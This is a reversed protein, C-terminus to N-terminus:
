ARGRTRSGRRRFVIRQAAGHAERVDVTLRLRHRSKSVEITDDGAWSGYGAGDVTLSLSMAKQSPDAIALALEGRHERMLVTCPWPDGPGVPALRVADAIVIGNADNSVEVHYDDGAVFNFVGLRHWGTGHGFRQNIRIATQGGAHSVIFPTDTAYSSHEFSWASVAYTGSVPVRITFRAAATGDGERNFHHHGEHRHNGTSAGWNGSVIQFEPSLDDVVVTPLDPESPQELTVLGASGPTWFNVATVGARPYHIAQAARGNALIELGPDAALEATRAATAGPVLAYAYSEDSPRVGHDIWLTQYRRTIPDDPGDLWIDTWRGVRDERLANVTAGGPFLYGGVGELHAWRVDPFTANWGPAEPQVTDDITLTNTGDAHLSRNEVITEVAHESGGTIGAGLAVVYDDLFFWSKKARLSSTWRPDQTLAMMATGYGDLETGGVADEPSTYNRGQADNRPEPDVTIGPLRYPDVTPWFADAYHGLDDTYHYLMGSATHWGHLNTRLGTAEYTRIRSSSMALGISYGPRHHVARDMGVFPRYGLPREYAPIGPDDTVSRALPILDLRAEDLFRRYTDRAIWHKAMSRFAARDAAPAAEALRLVAEIVIHGAFHDNKAPDAIVRGRVMDMMAGDIMFPEFSDYVWRNVNDREPDTVEWSSGTLITLLPALEVLMGSGYGGNYPFATHQIFSGDRHFGDGSQVYPFLSSLSSSAESVRAADRTVFGAVAAMRCKWVLNAGTAANGSHNIRTPDPSYQDISHVFAAMDAPTLQDALLVAADMLRRGSGIEWQYWTDTEYEAGRAFKEANLWRLAEVLRAAFGADEFYASGPTAYARAMGEVRGLSDMMALTKDRNGGTFPLDPWLHGDVDVPLTALTDLHGSIRADLAALRDRVLPDSQDLNPGGTLVNRWRLRLSDFEDVSDAHALGTSRVGLHLPSGAWAIVSGAAVLFSRRPIPRREDDHPAM